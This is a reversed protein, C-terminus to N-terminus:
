NNDNDGMIITYQLCMVCMCMCACAHARMCARVHAWVCVCVGRDGGGYLNYSNTRTWGHRGAGSAM